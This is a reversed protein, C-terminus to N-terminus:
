HAPGGPAGAPEGAERDHREQLSRELPRRACVATLLAAVGAAVAVVFGGGPGFRDVIAGSVVAGSAVGVSLGTVAWTMGETLAAPPM